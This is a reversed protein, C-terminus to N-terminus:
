FLDIIRGYKPTKKRRHEADFEFLWRTQDFIAQKKSRFGSALNKGYKVDFFCGDHQSVDWEKGKQEAQTSCQCTLVDFVNGIGL